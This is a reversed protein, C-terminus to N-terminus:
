AAHVVIFRECGSIIGAAYTTSVATQEIRQEQAGRAPPLASSTTTAPLPDNGASHEATPSEMPKITPRPTTPKLRPTM